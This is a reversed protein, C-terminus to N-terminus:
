RIRRSLRQPAFSADGSYQVRLLGHIVGRRPRIVFRGHRVTVHGRLTHHGRATLTWSVRGTARRALHGEILLRGHTRRIRPLALHPSAPLPKAAPALPVAPPVATFGITAGCSVYASANGLDDYARIRFGYSHGANGTFIASSRDTNSIWTGFPGGDTSLDVDYGSVPSMDTAGWSVSIQPDASAPHSCTIAPVPPTSDVTLTKVAAASQFTEAYATTHATASLRYIGDSSGEVTWQHTATTGPTLSGAGPSWDTSGGSTITIGAPVSLSATADNGALDDSPNEVSETVTVADSDRATSRGLTLTVAPKPPVLSTLPNKAALAFPEEPEGDVVSSQDKVKYVVTGAGSARVQEVNDIASESSALETQPSTSYEYLDLNSLTLAAPVATQDPAGAVRRNWVLTARDGANVTARYFRVGRAGVGDAAFNLRQQYASDLNLEGWGWDPQWSDQTGMAASPSSRGLTTSDLLIGKVVLPDTIGGGYLLAAAGAV